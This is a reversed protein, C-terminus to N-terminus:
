RIHNLYHNIAEVSYGADKAAIRFREDTILMRQLKNANGAAADRCSRYLRMLRFCGDISGVIKELLDTAEQEDM